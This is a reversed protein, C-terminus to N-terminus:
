GWTVASYHKRDFLNLLLLSVVWINSRAQLEANVKYGGYKEDVEIGASEALSTDIDLGVAIVM